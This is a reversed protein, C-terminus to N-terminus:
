YMSGINGSSHVSAAFFVIRTAIIGILALSLAGITSKKKFSIGTSAALCLMGIIYLPHAFWNEATQSIVINESSSWTAPLIALSLLLTGTCIPLLNAIANDEGQLWVYMSAGGSLAALTFWIVPYINDIAPIGEAAYTFGQAILSIAGSIVIIITVIPSTKKCYAFFALALFIAVAVAERSLWANAFNKLGAVAFMPKGLHTVSALLGFVTLAIVVFWERKHTSSDKSTTMQQYCLCFSLGVAVQVLSTFLVLSIEM